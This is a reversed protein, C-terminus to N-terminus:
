WVMDQSSTMEAAHLKVFSEEVKLVLFGTLFAYLALRIAGLAKM